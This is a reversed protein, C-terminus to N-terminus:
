SKKLLKLRIQLRANHHSILINAPLNGSLSDLNVSVKKYWPSASEIRDLYGTKNEIFYYTLKKRDRFRFVTHMQDRDTLVKDFKEDPEKTLILRFDTEIIKLVAKKNLKEICSHVILSDEALELDFIQIGTETTMIIRQSEPSIRKIFILGGFSKGYLDVRAKFLASEITDPIVPQISSAASKNGNTLLKLHYNRFACGNFIFFLSIFLLGPIRFVKM